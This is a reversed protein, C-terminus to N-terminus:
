IKDQNLLFIIFKRNFWKCQKLPHIIPILYFFFFCLSFLIKVLSHNGRERDIYRDREVYFYGEIVHLSRDKNNELLINQFHSNVHSNKSGFFCLFFSFRISCAQLNYPPNAGENLPIITVLLLIFKKMLGRRNRWLGPLLYLLRGESEAPAVPSKKLVDSPLLMLKYVDEVGSEEGYFLARRLVWFLVMVPEIKHSHLLGGVTQAM